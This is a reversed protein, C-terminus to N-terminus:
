EPTTLKETSFQFLQDMYAFAARFGPLKEYAPDTAVNTGPRPFFPDADPPAGERMVVNMSQQETRPHFDSWDWESSDQLIAAAELLSKENGSSRRVALDTLLCTRCNRWEGEEDPIRKLSQVLSITDHVVRFERFDFPQRANQVNVGLSITIM